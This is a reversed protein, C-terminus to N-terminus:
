EPARAAEQKRVAPIGAVIPLLLGLILAAFVGVDTAALDSDLRLGLLPFGYGQWGLWSVTATTLSYGIVSILILGILNVWRVDAYVGGRKVLSQSEFRRNRIMTEAAFIGAWAATPVALTTAADRLLENLGGTVGFGILIALAGLLAGVIVISWQRRVRVGISQLAFGGSYLSLIVGSLLSLATAAILPVPYWSPLMLALTDLPSLLFGSAIGKDSAALLAGYGILLFSPVTTGFTAWLMNSAGSSDTRQYRALDAGSNAWILGVFSFVLVAGAITLIWPGDAATLAESIDIYQYTLAILGVVLIGSIISLILQIRAVLPYGAFAVLVAVLFAAALSILLVQAEGLAGDLQAGVVVVAVSSALLWLLVAGWFVRTLLAVVAPVVNGILGFTARSVVMTPQGSRKGALTTLGLPLFSIAVGALIAVISQRLSLGVAFVAAGLGISLISSNAAFWLWFMRAARGVRHDVPTPELDSDEISFVPQRTPEDDFLVQEDERLRVTSIPGSPPSVQAAVAATGAASVAVPGLIGSFARDTDDVDDDLEEEYAQDIVSISGTDTPIPEGASFPLPEIFLAEPTAVAPEPDPRQPAEDALLDDFSFPKEETNREPTSTQSWDFARPGSQPEVLAPPVIVASEAAVVLEPAGTEATTPEVDPEFTPVVVADDDPAPANEVPVADALADEAPADGAVADDSPADDAAADAEASAYLPAEADAAVTPEAPRSWDFAGDQETETATAQPLPDSEPADDSATDEPTTAPEAVPEVDVDDQTDIAPEADAEAPLETESTSEAEVSPEEPEANAEPVPAPSVTNTLDWVPGTPEPDPALAQSWDFPAFADPEDETLAAPAPEPESDTAPTPDPEIVPEPSLAWDFSARTEPEPAPAHALAETVPAGSDLVAEGGFDPGPDSEPEPEAIEDAPEEQRWDPPPAWTSSPAPVNWRPLSSPVVSPTPDSVPPLTEPPAEYVPPDPIPTPEVVPVSPVPERFDAVPWDAVPAGGSVFSGTAPAQADPLVDNFQARAEGVAGLADPTGIDRMRDEWARFERAEEERLKMQGQLQEIIDLTGGPRDGAQAVWDALEDDPLSKRVPPTPIPGTAPEPMQVAQAPDPAPLSSWAPAQAGLEGVERSDPEPVTSSPSSSPSEPDLSSEPAAVPEPAAAEAVPSWSFPQGLPAVPEPTRWAALGPPIVTDPTIIPIPGSALRGNEAALLDALADDDTADPEAVVPRPQTIPWFDGSPPTYTSRRPGEPEVAPDTSNEEGFEDEHEM